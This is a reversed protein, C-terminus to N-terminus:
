RSSYSSSEGAILAYLLTCALLVGASVGRTWEPAEHGGGEGDGDGHGGAEEDGGVKKGHDKGMLLSAPRERRGSGHVGGGSGIISGQHRLASVTAVAVARTFDETTLSSPLRIPTLRDGHPNAVGSGSTSTRAHTLGELFPTYGQPLNYTASTTRTGKDEGERGEHSGEESVKPLKLTAQLGSGSRGTGEGALVPFQGAIPTNPATDYGLGRALQNSAATTMKNDKHLPLIHQMVAQPTMRQSLSAKMAPHLSSLVDDPKLLQQPNQWIQSAHTRLSFWLGILYSQPILETWWYQSVFLLIGACCYMLTKVQDQYFPDDVPDPHEYYCQNCQWSDQTTM